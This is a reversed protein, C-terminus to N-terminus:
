NKKKNSSDYHDHDNDNDNNYIDNNNISNNEQDKLKNIIENNFEKELEKM